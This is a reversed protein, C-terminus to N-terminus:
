IFEGLYLHLKGTSCFLQCVCKPYECVVIMIRECHNMASSSQARSISLYSLLVPVINPALGEGWGMKALNV